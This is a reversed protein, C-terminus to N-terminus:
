SAAHPWRVFRGARRETSAERSSRDVHRAGPRRISALRGASGFLHHSISRGSAGVLSGRATPAGFASGATPQGRLRQGQPSHVDRFLSQLHSFERFQRSNKRAMLPSASAASYACSDTSFALVSGFSAFLAGTWDVADAIQGMPLGVSFRAKFLQEASQLYLDWSWSDVLVRDRNENPPFLRVLDLGCHRRYLDLRSCCPKLQSGITAPVGFWTGDHKALYEAIASVPGCENITEAVVSDVPELAHRRVAGGRRTRPSTM